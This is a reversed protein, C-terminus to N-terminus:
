FYRVWIDSMVTRLNYGHLMKHFIWHLGALGAGISTFIVLGPIYRWFLILITMFFVTVIILEVLHAMVYAISNKLREKDSTDPYYATLFSFWLWVFISIFFVFLTLYFLAYAIASSTHNLFSYNTYLVFFLLSFLLSSLWNKKFNKKYEKIWFPLIRLRSRNRKKFMKKFLQFMTITASVNSFIFLGFTVGFIWLFNAIVIIYIWNFVDYIRRERFNM